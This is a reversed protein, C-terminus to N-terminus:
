SKGNKVKGTGNCKPYKVSPYEPDRVWGRGKCVPCKIGFARKRDLGLGFCKPCKM